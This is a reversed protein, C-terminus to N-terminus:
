FRDLGVGLSRAGHGRLLDEVLEARPLRHLVVDHHHAAARGAQRGRDVDPLERRLLALFHRHHHQLFAGLGARRSGRATNRDM